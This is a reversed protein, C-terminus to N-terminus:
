QFNRAKVNLKDIPLDKDFMSKLRVVPKQGDRPDPGGGRPLEDGRDVSLRFGAHRDSSVSLDTILDLLQRAM